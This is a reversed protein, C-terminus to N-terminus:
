SMQDCHEDFTVKTIGQDDGYYDILINHFDDTPIFRDGSFLYQFFDNSTIPVLWVGWATHGSTVIFLLWIEDLFEAFIALVTKVSFWHKEFCGKFTSM